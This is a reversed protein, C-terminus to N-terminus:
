LIRFRIIEVSEIDFIKVTNKHNKFRDLVREQAETM